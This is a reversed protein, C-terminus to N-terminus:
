PDAKLTDAILAVLGNVGKRFDLPQTAELIKLETHLSIMGWVDVALRSAVPLPSVASRTEGPASLGQHPPDYTLSRQSAGHESTWPRGAM